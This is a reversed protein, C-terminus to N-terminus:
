IIVQLYDININFKKNLNNIYWGIQETKPSTGVVILKEANECTPFFAYEMLQGLAQRICLRANPATKIEFFIFNNSETKAVLDIYNCGNVENEESLEKITYNQIIKNNDKIKSILKRKIKEHMVLISKPERISKNLFREKAINKNTKEFSFSPTIVDPQSIEEYTQILTDFTKEKLKALNDLIEKKKSTDFKTDKLRLAPCYERWPFSELSPDAEVLNEVVSKFYRGYRESEFHIEVYVFGKKHNANKDNDLMYIIEYHIFWEEDFSKYKDHLQLYHANNDKSKDKIIMNCANFDEDTFEYIFDKAM